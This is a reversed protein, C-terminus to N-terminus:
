SISDTLGTNIEGGWAPRAGVRQHGEDRLVLPASVQVAPSLAPADPERTGAAGLDNV